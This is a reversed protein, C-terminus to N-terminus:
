YKQNHVIIIKNILIWRIKIESQTSYNDKETKKKKKINELM